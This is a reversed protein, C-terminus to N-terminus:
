SPAWRAFPETDHDSAPGPRRTLHEGAVITGRGRRPSCISILDVLRQLTERHRRPTAETLLRAADWRAVVQEAQARGNDFLEVPV